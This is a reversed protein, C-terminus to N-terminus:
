GSHRERLVRAAETEMCTAEGDAVVAGDVTLVVEAVFASRMRRTVRARVDLPAGVAVGDRLRYSVRATMSWVDHCVGAYVAMEDVLLGVLGGHFRDPYGVEAPGPVHRAVAEDGERVIRLRLGRPNDLGCVFCGTFATPNLLEGTM